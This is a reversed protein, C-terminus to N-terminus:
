ARSAGAEWVRRPLPRAAFQERSVGWRLSALVAGAVILGALADVAYHFQGYVVAAILGLTLPTLLLGLRRWYRLACLTAVVAAAVHSSPFAAGWSDGLDLVRQTLQAPWVATAANHAEDFAYRPGAVPFFLFMVYCVYFTVMVAFITRRAPDRRDSFWLGLPSGYLIAYYALYCTHLLWSLVPSPMERIWRYSLQSGFVWAEFRQIALDNQFGADLTLVGIEGYLAALLLMPYWDGFVRGVPGAVRARPALWVLLALLAHAVLLWPWGPIDDGRFSLLVAVTALVVYLITAIDIPTYRKLAM